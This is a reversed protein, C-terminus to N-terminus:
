AGSKSRPITQISNTMASAALPRETHFYKKYAAIWDTSIDRQATALDLTGQCVMQHLHEELADKVRANWTPLTYPEPWLNHIDESGGLSPAILFDIEYDEARASAIGYEHLVQQRLAAPVDRVVEEHDTSCADSISIPRTAGPTLTHDPVAANEIPLFSTSPRPSAFHQMLLASAAAILVLAVPVYALAGRPFFFQLIRPWPAADSKAAAAVLQSKLLARPGAASPLQPDLMGRHAHVFAAITAELEGLRTRCLWCGALHARVQRARSAALEGDASRLLDQDSLHLEEDGM